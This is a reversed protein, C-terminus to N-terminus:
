RLVNKHTNVEELKKVAFIEGRMECGRFQEAQKLTCPKSLLVWYNDKIAVAIHKM